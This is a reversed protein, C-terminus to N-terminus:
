YQCFKIQVDMSVLNPDSDDIEFNKVKTVIADLNAPNPNIDFLPIGLKRWMVEGENAPCSGL